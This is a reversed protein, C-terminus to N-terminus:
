ELSRYFAKLEEKDEQSLVHWRIEKVAGELSMLMNICASDDIQKIRKFAERSGIQVLAEATEIGVSKLKEELQSGINPLIRLPKM